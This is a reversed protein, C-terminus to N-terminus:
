RTLEPWRRRSSPVVPKPQDKTKADRNVIHAKKDHFEKLRDLAKTLIAQTARQVAVTAQFEKNEKERDESARKKEM